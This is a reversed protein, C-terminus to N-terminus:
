FIEIQTSVMHISENPILRCLPILPPQTNWKFFFKSFINGLLGVDLPKGLLQKHMARENKTDNAHSFSPDSNSIVTTTQQEEDKNNFPFTDMEEEEQPSLTPTKSQAEESICQSM